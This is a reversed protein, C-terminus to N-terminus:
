QEIKHEKLTKKTYNIRLRKTVGRRKSKILTHTLTYQHYSPVAGSKLNQNGDGNRWRKEEKM